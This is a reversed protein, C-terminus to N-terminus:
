PQRNTKVASGTSENIKQQTKILSEVKRATNGFADLLELRKEEDSVIRMVRPRSQAVGPGSFTNTDKAEVSFRVTSGITLPPVLRSLDWSFRQPASSGGPPLPLPISGKEPPLEGQDKTTPRFIEYAIEVQGVGFDDKVTYAIPIVANAQATLKESRPAVLSVVPPRDTRVDIRTVVPLSVEGNENEVVVSLGTLETSAIPIGARFSRRDDGFVEAAVEGSPRQLSLRAAKIPQNAAGELRLKGGALLSLTGASLPTEKLGTYDPYVQTFRTQTIAPVIKVSVRGEEGVGDGVEFHYRFPQRVNPLTFAYVGKGDSSAAVTVADKRGDDFAVIVRGSKPLVGAARASLNAEAGEIVELDGSGEVVRTQTPLPVHMLLLRQLLVFSQPFFGAFVGGVIVLVVALFKVAKVFETGPVVRRPVDLLSIKNAIRAILRRVLEVSGQICGPGGAALQVASILESRFQPMRREILLAMAEAGLPRSLPRLIHKWALWGMVGADALLFAGRVIWPLGFLWDALSQALWLVALVAFIRALGTLLTFLVVRRRVQGLVTRLGHPLGLREGVPLSSVPPPLKTKM